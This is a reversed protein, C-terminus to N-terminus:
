PCDCNLSCAHGSHLIAPSCKKKVIIGEHSAYVSHVWKTKSCMVSTVSFFSTKCSIRMTTFWAYRRYLFSLPVLCWIQSLVLIIQDRGLNVLPLRGHLPRWAGCSRDLSRTIGAFSGFCSRAPLTNNVVLMSLMSFVMIIKLKGWLKHHTYYWTEFLKM